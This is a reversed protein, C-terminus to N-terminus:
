KSNDIIGTGSRTSLTLVVQKALMAGSPTTTMIVCVLLTTESEM